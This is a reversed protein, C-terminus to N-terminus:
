VEYLIVEYNLRKRGINYDAYDKQSGYDGSGINLLYNVSKNIKITQNESIKIIKGNIINDIDRIVEEVLFMDKSPYWLDISVPINNRVENNNVRLVGELNYVINITDIRISGDNDRVIDGYYTPAFKILTDYIYERLNRM